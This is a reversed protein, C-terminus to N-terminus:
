LSAGLFLLIYKFSVYLFLMGFMIRLVASPFHKNLRAGINAGILTGICLPLALELMTFGQFFKFISSLFANTCFCALSSGIAIKIPAGLFLAFAPVLVAGTGIGLFGPLVGAIGGITFKGLLSGRIENAAAQEAKRKRLQTWGEVIMRVSVLSFTLGTGLDLWSQRKTFYLFVLSFVVTSIAGAVIVPAISKFNIHGLKYHRFSGGLTTFFVAVICTGAAEAPSLGFLLRLIPMIVIGGGIGLLGGLVGAFFGTIILIIFFQM